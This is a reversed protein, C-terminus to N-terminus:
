IEEVDVVSLDITGPAGLAYSAPGIQITNELCGYVCAKARTVAAVVSQGQALGAAIAAALTCGTGHTSLADVVRSRCAFVRGNNWLLDTATDSDLHGGKLLVDTGLRGALEELADQMNAPDISYGVIAEAEPINPTVLTARPTLHAILCEALADHALADGSTAVLVPDIVLPPRSELRDLETCLAHVIDASYLMGTKIAGVSIAGCVARCQSAVDTAPVPHIATVGHPNQSTVATIATAGFCGLASFAKLDAQIGAGGGSDSGAVTLCVPSMAAAM